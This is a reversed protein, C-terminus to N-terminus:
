HVPITVTPSTQGALKVAVPVSGTATGAPVVANVQYLGVFGPALGAFSVAAERGGITMQVPNVTQTRADAPASGDAVAPDVPGLGTCFLEITDGAHAPAAPTVLYPASGDAPYGYAIATNDPSGTNFVSPEAPAVDVLVPLSLTLGRQVLIQQPANVNVKYPVVANVQTQSVYYLPLKVGALTLQTDVLLQSLPLSASAAANEALRDGYISIAGGPAVAIYPPGGAVSVIGSIDFVPPQQQSGLDGSVQQDGSIQLQPNEAHLRLTVKAATTRTPWTGEWRGDALAQLAVPADGNSFSVTVSGSQLPAGCDDKVSVALAVPWGASVQFSDALTTLAPLLKTPTCAAADRPASDKRVSPAATPTLGGSASIIVKINVHALRFDSFQLTLAATYVGPSLRGTFFPQVIIATPQKPDVGADTPLIMLFLRPDNTQVARFSKASATLNYVLLTQSGPSEGGPSAGFILSGPQVVAGVDSGPPLVQLFVTVVQPSNAATAATVMVLGYYVGPALGGPNVTVSIPASTQGSSDSSGSGPSVQLWGGGSTTSTSVTWAVTGTGINLVSFSQPPVKGGDAVALFSLGRQSLLIAQDLASITMTVPVTQNGADSAITIAGRYTGPTLGLPDANITITAPAAPSATGSAPAVTLWGQESDAAATFSLNGGGTNSVRLQQSRKTGIRPFTFSLNPNDVALSPASGTTVNVAIPISVSSPTAEPATLTIAAQYNGPELNLPDVTVRVLGPASGLVPTITLWNPADPQASITFSVGPVSATVTFSQDPPPAGGSQASFTLSGASVQVQPRAVLVERVRDYGADPIYLNGLVDVSLNGIGGFTAATAPGGDGSLGTAGTGAAAMITGDTSIKRIRNNNSDVVYINGASDTALGRPFNLTASAAPGGDGANGATGTGAITTIAGTTDIRRVRNSHSDSVYLNGRPDLALGTPFNLLANTAPGDDGSFGATGTGAVVSITGSPSLKSVRNSGPEAFYLNGAEDTVMGNVEAFGLGPDNVVATVIGASDIKHIKFVDIFYLNGAKDLALTTPRTLASDIAPVGDTPGGVPGNGAITTIVGSSNVKRIRRTDAIYMNGAPDVIAHFPLNLIAASAPGDDSGVKYNGNGAITTITGSRDVRRVRGNVLDTLYLNGSTDV